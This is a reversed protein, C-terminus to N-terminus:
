YDSIEGHEYLWQVFQIRLDDAMREHMEGNEYLHERINFLTVAEGWAFGTDILYDIMMQDAVTTPKDHRAKYRHTSKQYREPFEPYGGTSSSQINGM